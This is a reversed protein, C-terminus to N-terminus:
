QSAFPGSITPPQYNVPVLSAEGIFSSLDERWLLLSKFVPRHLVFLHLQYIKLHHSSPLSCSTLWYWVECKFIFINNQVDRHCIKKEMGGFIVPKIYYGRVKLVNKSTWLSLHGGRRNKREKKKGDRAIELQPLMKVQNAITPGKEQDGM